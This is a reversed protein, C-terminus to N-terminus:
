GQIVDARYLKLDRTKRQSVVTLGRL